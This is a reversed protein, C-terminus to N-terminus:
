LPIAGAARACAHWSEAWPHHRTVEIIIRRTSSRIRAAIKLLRTRLTGLQAHALERDRLRDQLAQMLVCAALTLLMRFQNAQFGTCSTLDMRLDNKLDKITNEMISHQHYFQFIRDAGYRNDLNTVLYRENNRPSRGYEIVVEAKYAISRMRSWKKAQYRSKERITITKNRLAAMHRVKEMLPESIRKLVANGSFGVVYRVDAEELFDMLAGSGFEADARFYIRVGPFNRRLVAFLRKLIGQTGAYANATGPRLVAAVAYKRTEDDFGVSVVHPLYCWTDYKANFLTGQQKGHTPDCTPDLDVIIRNPKKKGKRRRKQNRIVSEALAEGMRLLEKRRVSNELRSLTPQSGLAKGSVPDRDCVLKMIPDERMAAATTSTPYGCAIGFIRLRVLELMQHKTKELERKDTITTGIDATLNLKKDIARLVVAGGNTSLREDQFHVQIPKSSLEQFLVGQAIHKTM